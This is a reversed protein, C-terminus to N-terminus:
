LIINHKKFVISCNHGGFGFTNNLVTKINKNKNKNFNFNLLKNFKNDNNLHNITPLITNNNMSLISAITEIIGSAGLLHGTMSKTSSIDIQNIHNKFIKYIARAESLDGLYTSTGHANIYDIDKSLIKSNFIANKIALFAGSGDDPTIVHNTNSSIGVGLILAYIKAKRKKAHEYEELIIAGSGEGIVFGDRNKDFPRSAHKLNKNKLSLAKLSNFGNIGSQTIPAESGGAIAIKIRGTQILEFANIIANASSACASSISLNPGKLNYKVSIHGAAINSIIKPIFFPNFNLNEKKKYFNLIENEFSEIGGIGSGWIIGIKEKNEKKIKIKSNKIAEECAILAYQSFRDLKKYRAKDFYNKKKYKKIECAFQTKNKFTNFRTIKKAGSKGNKLNKWYEKINNGIPNITGMGTIAVKKFKM